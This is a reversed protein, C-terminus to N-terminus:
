GRPITNTVSSPLGSMPGQVWIIGEMSLPFNPVGSRAAVRNDIKDWIAQTHDFYDYLGPKTFPFSVHQGAAVKLGFTQLNLFPSQDWTTM